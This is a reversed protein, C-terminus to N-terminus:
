KILIRNRLYETVKGNMPNIGLLSTWSFDSEPMNCYAIFVLENKRALPIPYLKRVYFDNVVEVTPKGNKFFLTYDRLDVSDLYSLYSFSDETFSFHGFSAIYYPHIGPNTLLNQLHFSDKSIIPRKQFDYKFGPQSSMFIMPLHDTELEYTATFTSSISPEYFEFQKRILTDFFDQNEDFALITDLYKTQLYKYVVEEKLLARTADIDRYIEEVSADKLTRSSTENWNDVFSLEIYWDGGGTYKGALGVFISSDIPTSLTLLTDTNSFRLQVEESIQNEEPIKSCSIIFYIILLLFANRNKM